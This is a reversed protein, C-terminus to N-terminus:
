GILYAKAALRYIYMYHLLIQSCLRGQMIKCFLWYGQLLGSVVGQLRTATSLIFVRVKCSQTKFPPSTRISPVKTIKCDEVGVQKASIHDATQTFATHTPQRPVIPTMRRGEILWENDHNAGVM